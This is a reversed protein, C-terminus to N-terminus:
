LVGVGFGASVPEYAAVARAQVSQSSNVGVVQIFYTTVPVSVIVEIAAPNGQYTSSTIAGKTNVTVTASSLNNYTQVYTTARTTAGAYDGSNQLLYYCGATAGADAANQAQRRAAMLMGLDIVLGIMGLIVLLLMAFLVLTKGTRQTSHKRPRPGDSR